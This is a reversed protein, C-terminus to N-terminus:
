SGLYRQYLAVWDAAIGRQADALALRGACVQDHLVNELEDKQHFGPAPLAPEPWLNRDSNDGGLELPILHDLEYTGPPQPYALGYAAYVQLYQERLVNRARSAYGSVCIEPATVDAFIEGPTLSTKPLVGVVAPPVTAAIAPPAPTETRPTSAVAAAPSSPSDCAGLAVCLLIALALLPPRM